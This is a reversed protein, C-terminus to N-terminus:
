KDPFPNTEPNRCRYKMSPNAIREMSFSVTELRPAVLYRGHAELRLMISVLM